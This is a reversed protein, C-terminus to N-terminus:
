RAADDVWGFRIGEMAMGPGFALAIGNRPRQEMIRQLVFLITASSLNGCRRLVGRSHDLASAPLDLATEVADLISRGGAHVAWSDFSDIGASGTILDVTEREALALSIRGPVAGSLHMAFGTDTIRWTILEDSDGFALSLGEGLELGSGQSSILLAAAGDGFLGMALLSGLEADGQLHLTCLEVSVLLIRASPDSRSIHRAMRLGTVGAYCGMFGIVVREVGPGLGLQRAIIQDIGPAVFGTCSVVVLHTIGSIDPLARIAELALRPAEAAYTEMRHSTAPPADSAFYRHATQADAGTGGLVSWRHEIGSRAVMRAYIAAERRDELRAVAWSRYSQEIDLSPLATAIANIRAM